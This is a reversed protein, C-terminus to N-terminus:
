GKLYGCEALADRMAHGIRPHNMSYIHIGDVGNSALDAVQEIAYEM